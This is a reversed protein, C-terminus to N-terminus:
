FQVFLKFELGKFKEWFGCFLILISIIKKYFIKHIFLSYDLHVHPFFLVEAVHECWRGEQVLVWRWRPPMAECWWLARQRRYVKGVKPVFLKGKWLRFTSFDFATLKCKLYNLFRMFILLRFNTWVILFTELCHSKPIFLNKTM